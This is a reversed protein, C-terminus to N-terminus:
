DEAKLLWVDSIFSQQRWNVRSEEPEDFSVILKGKDIYRRSIFFEKFGELDKNYLRPTMRYGNVRLLADGKGAIRIVYNVNPNLNEYVLRPAHQFLQTSLRCRSWGDNWWAVDTGDEVTTVVHPSQSVDSINDYYNGEGPNQWAAIVNLRALKDKEAPMKSIKAFEDALWWRNNLPYDIYDLICGREPGDAHYKKFSSQWGISHYLIECYGAIKQKLAQGIPHTDAENVKELARQMAMESGLAPAALLIRNASQELQREYMKRRELYADYYARLVLMQWRWNDHLGPYAQELQQWHRFSAEIGQNNEIPGDWNKELSMIAEAVHDKPKSCFFFREYQSVAEAVSFSPSWSRLSWVFKNVDDTVGESYTIYGNTMPAYKDHITSYYEPQPNIPERGYTLAFAQDWRLVPYQCRVCHTIDPYHRLLYRQPLRTRTEFISPSGPGCVVGRLWDPQETELYHYFYEMEEDNFGQLSIWMGAAPHYKKLAESLKKMFPLLYKPHNSGPDGGPVFVNDLKPCHSYFAVNRLFEKQNAVPDSLDVEAPTWIWYDLGYKRCVRSIYYNISDKPTKMISDPANDTPVAEISNTGFIVLERIYQEFQPGTWLDYTNPLPRYGLQHGRISDTPEYVGQCNMDLDMRNKQYFSTRLLHGAAFLVGRDDAGILWLTAHPGNDQYEIRYSEAKAPLEADSPLARGYLGADSAKVLAITLSKGWKDASELRFGTRKSIEEQMMTIISSRVPERITKSVLLSAHSLNIEGGYLAAPLLFCLIVFCNFIKKM